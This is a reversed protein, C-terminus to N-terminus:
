QVEAVHILDVAGADAFEDAREGGGLVLAALQLQQVEGLFNVIQQLNGLEVGDEVHFVVFGRGHLGERLLDAEALFRSVHRAPTSHQGRRKGKQAVDGFNNREDGRSKRENGRQGGVIVEILAFHDYDRM